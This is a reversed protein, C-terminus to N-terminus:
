SIKSISCELFLHLVRTFSKRQLKITLSRAIVAVKEKTPPAFPLKTELYPLYYDALFHVLMRRRISGTQDRYNCEGECLGCIYGCIPFLPNKQYLEEGIEIIQREAEKTDAPLLAIKAHSRQVDMGLPCAIQCPALCVKGSAEDIVEEVQAPDKQPAKKSM